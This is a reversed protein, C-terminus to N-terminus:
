IGHSASDNGQRRQADYLQKDNKAAPDVDVQSDGPSTMRMHSRSKKNEQKDLDEGDL